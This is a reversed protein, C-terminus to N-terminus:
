ENLPSRIACAAVLRAGVDGLVGLDRLLHPERQELRALRLVGRQARGQRRRRDRGLRRSGFVIVADPSM